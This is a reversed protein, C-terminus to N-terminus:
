VHIISSNISDNYSVVVVTRSNDSNNTRNVKENGTELELGGHRLGDDDDNPKQDAPRRRRRGRRDDSPPASAVNFGLGAVM